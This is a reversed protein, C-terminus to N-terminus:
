KDKEEFLEVILYRAWLYLSQLYNPLFGTSIVSAESETVELM